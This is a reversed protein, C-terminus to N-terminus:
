ALPAYLEDSCPSFNAPWNAFLTCLLRLQIPAEQNVKEVLVKTNDTGAEQLLGLFDKTFYRPCYGVLTAPEETRLAIADPDYKTQPDPMLYLQEGPSLDHIRPIAAPLLYRLGHSFFRMRYMNDPGRSPCPFLALWDGEEMGGTCALLSM